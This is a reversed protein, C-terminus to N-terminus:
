IFQTVEAMPRRPRIEPEKAPYGLLLLGQPEWTSPLTLAARVAEPAFLPACIWVSGLGEAHAALLLIGGALAVSQVGMLYESRARKEDPYADMDVPDMCLLIAAPAEVLRRRSREVQASARAETMGDALLDRLFGQGMGEALRVRAEQTSLIVLRWPQRNHASPAWSTSELIRALIERPVPQPLFRRVSHRSRIFEQLEGSTPRM